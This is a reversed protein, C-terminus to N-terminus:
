ARRAVQIRSFPRATRCHGAQGGGLQAPWLTAASCELVVAKGHPLPRGAGGGLQAPWLTAASRELVVCCLWGVDSRSFRVSVTQRQSKNVKSMIIFLFVCVSYALDQIHQSSM